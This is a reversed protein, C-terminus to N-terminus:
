EVGYLNDPVLHVLGAIVVDLGFEFADDLAQRLDDDLLQGAATALVAGNVYDVVVNAGREVDAPRLRSLALARHLAANAEGAAVSVADPSTVIRVVLSPHAEVVARYARAWHRVRTPWSGSEDPKPMGAFVRHVIGHFLAEKNPVHHYIAMPDVGLSAGLRRMSLGDVGAEDILALGADFIREPTLPEAGARRGM